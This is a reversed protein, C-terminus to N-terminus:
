SEKSAEPLEGTALYNLDQESVRAQERILQAKGLQEAPVLVAFETALGPVVQNSAIRAPVNESEMLGLLAQALIGDGFRALVLWEDSSM